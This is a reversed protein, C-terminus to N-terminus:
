LLWPWVIPPVPGAPYQNRIQASRSSHMGTSDTPSCPNATPEDKTFIATYGCRQQLPITKYPKLPHKVAFGEYLAFPAFDWAKTALNMVAYRARSSLLFSPVAQTPCAFPRRILMQARVTMLVHFFGHLLLSYFLCQRVYEHRTLTLQSVLEQTQRQPM